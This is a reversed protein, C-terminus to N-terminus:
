EKKSGAIDGCWECVDHVYIDKNHRSADIIREMAIGTEWVDGSKLEIENASCTPKSESSYRAKFRHQRGGNYCRSKFM